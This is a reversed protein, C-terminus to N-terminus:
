RDRMTIYLGILLLALAPLAPSVPLGRAPPFTPSVSVVPIYATVKPTPTASPLPIVTVTENSDNTPLPTPTPTKTVTKKPTAKVTTNTQSKNVVFALNNGHKEEGKGDYQYWNGLVWIEPDIYIAYTKTMKNLDVIHDPEVDTNEDLYFEWHAFKGTWGYVSRMDYTETQNITQGQQIYPYARVSPILFALILILAFAIILWLIFNKVEM